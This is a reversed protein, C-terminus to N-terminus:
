VPSPVSVPPEHRIGAANLLSTPKLGVACRTGSLPVMGSEGLRSETPEIARNDIASAFHALHRRLLTGTRNLSFPQMLGQSNRQRACQSTRLTAYRPEIRATAIKIVTRHRGPQSDEHTCKARLKAARSNTPTASEQKHRTSLKRREDGPYSRSPYPPRPARRHPAGIRVREDM